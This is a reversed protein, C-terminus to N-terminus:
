AATWGSPLFPRVMKFYVFGGVVACAILAVAAGSAVKAAAFFLVAAILLAKM